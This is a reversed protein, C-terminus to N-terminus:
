GRPLQAMQPVLNAAQDVPEPSFQTAATQAAALDDASMQTKLTAIREVSGKDGAAAAIAYWKYADLLSQPVGLGREYLVGLNFESDVYGLSAARSFWRAAEGYNKPAGWGEAYSVALEHMAKRNGQMAAEEYWHLAQSPDAAVGRGNGYLAGLLMQAVAEGRGAARAIWTAAQSENKAAGTGDLYELGLLLEAQANGGNALRALRIQPALVARHAVAAAMHVPPAVKTESTAHSKLALGAGALVVLLAVSGAILMRTNSSTGKLAALVQNLRGGGQGADQESLEAAAKASRRAQSLYSDEGNAPPAAEPTAEATPEAAQPELRPLVQVSGLGSAVHDTHPIDAGGYSAKIQAAREVADVRGSVELVLTRVDLISQRLEKKSSDLRIALDKASDDIAARQLDQGADLREELSRLAAEAPAGGSSQETKSQRDDLSVLAREFERLRRELWADVPRAELKAVMAELRAVTQALEDVRSPDVTPAVPASEPRPEERPQEAPAEPEAPADEMQVVPASVTEPEASAEVVPTQFPLADDPILQEPTFTTQAEPEPAQPAIEAEVPAQSNEEGAAPANSEDVWDALAAFQSQIDAEAAPSPQQEPESPAPAPEEVASAEAILDEARFEVEPASEQAGSQAGPEVAPQEDSETPSEEEEESDDENAPFVDVMGHALTAVDDAVISQLLDNKNLFYAYVTPPAFGAEDAVRGLSFQEVGDRAVLRRAAAVIAERTTNRVWRPPATKKAQGTRKAM